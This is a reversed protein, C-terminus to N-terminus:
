NTGHKGGKRPLTLSRVLYKAMELSFKNGWAIINQTDSEENKGKGIGIYAKRDRTIDEEIIIIAITGQNNTFWLKEIVKM